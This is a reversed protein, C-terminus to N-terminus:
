QLRSFGRKRSKEFMFLFFSLSITLYFIALVFSLILLDINIAQKTILERMGEFIYAMPLSLSVLKLWNPLIELPYVITSVLAIITIIIWPLQPFKSGKIMLIGAGLFGAMWGSLLCLFIFSLLSWGIAFVNVNFFVWGILAGYFLTFVMKLAGSLMMSIIWESRKLPASILNTMNQDIFEDLINLCIEANTRYIVQWLVLGTIFPQVVNPQGSISGAWSAILGLFGIDIMPWFLFEAIRTPDRTAYLYRLVMAWIRYFKM